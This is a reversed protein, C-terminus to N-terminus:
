TWSQRKYKKNAPSGVILMTTPTVLADALRRVQPEVFVMAGAPAPIKNGDITFEAKGELIVFLEEQGTSLEDHDKTLWEGKKRTIANVGFGKIGFYWRISHWGRTFSEEMPPIDHVKAVKWGNKLKKNRSM